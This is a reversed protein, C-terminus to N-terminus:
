GARKSKFRDSLGVEAMIKSAMEATVRKEVPAAEVDRKRNRRAIKSREANIIRLIVGENPMKSPSDIVAARCAAQVEALPYDQLAAMWDSVIRDHSMSGRDREWGFRDFKKALVELEVAVM